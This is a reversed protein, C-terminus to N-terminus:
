HHKGEEKEEVAWLISLRTSTTCATRSNVPPHMEYRGKAASVSGQSTSPNCLVPMGGRWFYQFKQNFSQNKTYNDINNNNDSTALRFSYFM